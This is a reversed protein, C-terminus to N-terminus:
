LTRSLRDRVVLRASARTCRVMASLVAVPAPPLEMSHMEALEDSTLKMIRERAAPLREPTFGAVLAKVVTKDRIRRVRHFAAVAASVSAQSAAQKGAVTGRRFANM